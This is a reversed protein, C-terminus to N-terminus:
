NTIRQNEPECSFVQERDIAVNKPFFRKEKHAFIIKTVGPHKGFEGHLSRFVENFFQKRNLIQYYKVSGTEGFYKRFLLSDKLIIRDENAKFHIYRSDTTFLVDDHPQGLIKLKM